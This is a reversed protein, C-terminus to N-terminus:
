DMLSTLVGMIWDDRSSEMKSCQQGPSEATLEDSQSYELNL